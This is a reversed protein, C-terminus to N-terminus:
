AVFRYPGALWALFGQLQFPFAPRLALATACDHVGLLMRCHALSPFRAILVLVSGMCRCPTGLFLTVSLFTARSSVFSPTCLRPLFSCFRCCPPACQFPAVSLPNPHEPPGPGRRRGRASVNDSALYPALAREWAVSTQSRVHCCLYRNLPTASPLSEPLLLSARRVRKPWPHDPQM